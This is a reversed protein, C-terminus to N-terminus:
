PFYISIPESHFHKAYNLVNSHLSKFVLLCRFVHISPILSPMHLLFPAGSIITGSNHLSNVMHSHMACANEKLLLEPTYQWLNTSEGQFMPVCKVNWQLPVRSSMMESRHMDRPIYFCIYQYRMLTSGQLVGTCRQPCLFVDISMSNFHFKSFVEGSSHVSRSLYSCM